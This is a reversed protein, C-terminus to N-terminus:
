IKKEKQTPGPFKSNQEFTTKLIRKSLREIHLRRTCTYLTFVLFGRGTNGEKASCCQCGLKLAWLQEATMDQCDQMPTRDSYDQSENEPRGIRETRGQHRIRATEDQCGQEAITTRGTNNQWDQEAM